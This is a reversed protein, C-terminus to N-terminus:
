GQGNLYAKQFILQPYLEKVAHSFLNVQCRGASLKQVMCGLDDPINVTGPFKGFALLFQATGNM